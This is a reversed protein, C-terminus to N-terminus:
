CGVNVTININYLKTNHVSVQYASCLAKQSAGGAVAVAVFHLLSNAPITSVTDSAAYIIVNHRTNYDKVDIYVSPQYAPCHAQQCTEDAVALHGPGSPDGLINFKSSTYQILICTVQSEQIRM